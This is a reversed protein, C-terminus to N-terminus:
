ISLILHRLALGVGIAIGFSLMTGILVYETLKRDKAETLDGFRFISKAGLLFGIASFQDIFIFCFVFLRELIGIYNGANLLSKDDNKNEPTWVSILTRILISSPKSLFLVGTLVSWFTSNFFTYDIELKKYILVVAGISAYHAIQDVIFWTRKTKENQVILKIGDIIGHIIAIAIAYLIFDVKGVIIGALVGHLLSHIYLFKSKFANEEKHLVWKNPQFIFDGLLHTFILKLILIM